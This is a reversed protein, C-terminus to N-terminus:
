KEEKRVFNECPVWENDDNLVFYKFEFSVNPMISYRKIAGKMHFRADLLDTGCWVTETREELIAQEFKKSANNARLPSMLIVDINLKYMPQEIFQRKLFDVDDSFCWASAFPGRAHKGVVYYVVAGEVIMSPDPPEVKGLTIRDGSSIIPPRHQKIHFYLTGTDLQFFGFGGEEKFKSITAIQMEDVSGSFWQVAPREHKEGAEDELKEEIEIDTNEAEERPMPMTNQRDRLNRKAELVLGELEDLNEEDEIEIPQDPLDNGQSENGQSENGQSNNGQSDNGQTEDSVEVNTVDTASGQESDESIVSKTKKSM